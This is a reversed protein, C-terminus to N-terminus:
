KFRVANCAYDEGERYVLYSGKGLYHLVFFEPLEPRMEAKFVTTAEPTPSDYLNKVLFANNHAADFQNLDFGCRKLVHAPAKLAQDWHKIRLSQGPGIQGKARQEAFFGILNEWAKEESSFLSKGKAQQKIGLLKDLLGM